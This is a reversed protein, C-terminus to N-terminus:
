TKYQGVLSRGNNDVCRISCQSGEIPAENRFITLTYPSDKAKLPEGFSEPIYDTDLFVYHRKEKHCRAAIENAISRAEGIYIPLMEFYDEQRDSIAEYAIEQPCIYVIGVANFWPGYAKLPYTMGRETQEFVNDILYHISFGRKSLLYCFTGASAQLYEIVSEDLRVAPRNVSKYLDEVMVFAQMALDKESMNKVHSEVAFQISAYVDAATDNDYKGIEESNVLIADTKWDWYKYIKPFVWDSHIM